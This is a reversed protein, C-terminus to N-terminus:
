EVSVEPPGVDELTSFLPQPSLILQTIGQYEWFRLLIPHQVDPGLYLYSKSKGPTSHIIFIGKKGKGQAGQEVLFVQLTQGKGLSPVAQAKHLNQPTSDWM